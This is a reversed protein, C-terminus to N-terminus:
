ILWECDSDTEFVYGQRVLFYAIDTALMTPSLAADINTSNPASTAVIEKTLKM